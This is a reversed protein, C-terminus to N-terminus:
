YDFEDNQEKQEWGFFAAIKRWRIIMITIFAFPLLCCIM